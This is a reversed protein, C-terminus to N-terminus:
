EQITRTKLKQDAILKAFTDLNPHRLHLENNKLRLEAWAYYDEDEVKLNAFLAGGTERIFFETEEPDDMIVVSGAKPDKM